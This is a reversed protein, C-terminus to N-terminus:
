QLEVADVVAIVVTVDRVTEDEGSTALYKQEFM